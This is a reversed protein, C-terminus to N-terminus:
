RKAVLIGVLGGVALAVELAVLAGEITADSDGPRVAARIRIRGHVALGCRGVSLGGRRLGVLVAVLVAQAVASGVQLGAVAEAPQLGLAVLIGVATVIGAEAILVLVLTDIALTIGGSILLAVAPGGGACGGAGRIGSCLRGVACGHVPWVSCGVGRVLSTELVADVVAGTIVAVVVVEARFLTLVVLM